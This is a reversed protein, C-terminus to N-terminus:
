QRATAYSNAAAVAASLSRLRDPTPICGIPLPAKFKVNRFDKLVVDFKTTMSEQITAYNTAALAIKQTADQFQKLAANANVSEREAAALKLGAITSGYYIGAGWLAGGASAIGVAFCAIVCKGVCSRAFLLFAEFM